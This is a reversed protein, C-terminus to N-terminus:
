AAARRSRGGTTRKLAVRPVPFSNGKGAVAREETVTARPLLEGEGCHGEGRDDVDVPPEPLSADLNPCRDTPGHLVDDALQQQVHQAPVALDPTCPVAGAERPTPQHRRPRAKRRAPQQQVSGGIVADGRGSRRWRWSWLLRCGWSVPRQDEVAGEVVEVVAV